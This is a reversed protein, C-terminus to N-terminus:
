KDFAQVQQKTLLGRETFALKLNCGETADLDLVNDFAKVGIQLRLRQTTRGDGVMHAAFHTNIPGRSQGSHYVQKDNFHVILPKNPEAPMNELYIRFRDDVSMVM